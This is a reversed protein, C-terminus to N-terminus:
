RLRLNFRGVVARTFGGAGRETRQQIQATANAVSGADGVMHDEAARPEAQSAKLGYAHRNLAQERQRELAVIQQNVGPDGQSKLQEIRQTLRNLRVTHRTGIPKAIDDFTFSM